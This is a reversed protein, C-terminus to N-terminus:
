EKGKLLKAVLYIGLMTLATGSLAKLVDDSQNVSMREEFVPKSIYCRPCSYEIGVTAVPQMDEGCIPCTRGALANRFEVPLNDLGRQVIRARVTDVSRRYAKPLKYTTYEQVAVGVLNEEEGDTSGLSPTSRDGARSATLKIGLKECWRRITRSTKHMAKAAEAYSVGPNNEVYAAFEDLKSRKTDEM